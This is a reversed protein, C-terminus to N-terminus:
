AILIYLLATVIACAVLQVYLSYKYSWDHIQAISNARYIVFIFLRCNYILATDNYRYIKVGTSDWYIDNDM